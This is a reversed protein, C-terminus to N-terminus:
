RVISIVLSAPLAVWSLLFCWITGWRKCSTMLCLEWLWDGIGQGNYRGERLSSCDHETCQNMLKQREIMSRSPRGWWPCQQVWLYHLEHCWIMGQWECSTMQCLEARMGDAGKRRVVVGELKRIAVCFGLRTGPRWNRTQWIWWRKLFPLWEWHM